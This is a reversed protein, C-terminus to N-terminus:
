YNSYQIKLFIFYLQLLGLFTEIINVFFQKQPDLTPPPLIPPSGLLDTVHLNLLFVPEQILIGPDRVICLQPIYCQLDAHVELRDWIELNYLPCRLDLCPGLHSRPVFAKKHGGNRIRLFHAENLWWSRAMTGLSLNLSNSTLSPFPHLSLPPVILCCYYLGPAPDQNGRLHYM